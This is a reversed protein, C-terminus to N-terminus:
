RRRRMQQVRADNACRKSWHLVTPAHCQRRVRARVTPATANCAYWTDRKGARARVQQERVLDM